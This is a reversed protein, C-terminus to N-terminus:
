IVKQSREFPMYPKEYLHMQFDANKSAMTVVRYSYWLHPYFHSKWDCKLTPSKKPSDKYTLIIFFTFLGETAILGVFPHKKAVYGPSNPKLPIPIILHLLAENYKSLNWPQTLM